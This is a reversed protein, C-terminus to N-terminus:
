KDRQRCWRLIQADSQHFGPGAALSQEILVGVPALSPGYQVYGGRSARQPLWRVVSDYLREYELVADEWRALARMLLEVTAFLIIGFCVSAFIILATRLDPSEVRWAGLSLVGLVVFQAMRGPSWFRDESRAFWGVGFGVATFVIILCVFLISM